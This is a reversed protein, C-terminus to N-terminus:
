LRVLAPRRRVGVGLFPAIHRDYLNEVVNRAIVDENVELLDLYRDGM